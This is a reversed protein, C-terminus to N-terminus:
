NMSPETKDHRICNFIPFQLSEKGDKNQSVEKYKVEIITGIINDRNSWIQERQEDDYGSGVNVPNGNFDVILAGLTGQLRGTGEEYGIVKLDCTKFTKVKLIGSHRTKKYPVNLNVMCGEYGQEDMKGLWHQIQSQDTGQYFIDVVKLSQIGLESVTNKLKNLSKSRDIYKTMFKTDFEDVSLIDFIVYHFGSKNENDSNIIGTGIRFNENDSLNDVNDRILEGDIFYNDLNARHIDDLIYDFGQFIQGQRSILNGKYYSCRNGNLKHSLSFWTNPKLPYKSIPYAQQTEWLSIFDKGYIKNLSKATMGINLSKTFVQTWFLRDETPQAYLFNQIYSIDEDTGTNHISLYEIVDQFSNTSYKIEGVNKAIKKDSIGTVILPNYVFKLLQKLEQNDVNEKLIKEKETSKTTAQLQRIINIM